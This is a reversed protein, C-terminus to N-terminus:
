PLPVGDPTGPFLWFVSSWVKKKKLVQGSYHVLYVSTVIICKKQLLRPFHTLDEQVVLVSM